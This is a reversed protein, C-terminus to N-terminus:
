IEGGKMGLAENIEEAIQEASKQDSFDIKYDPDSLAEFLLRWADNSIKDFTKQDM